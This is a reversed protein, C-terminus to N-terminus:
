APRRSGYPMTSILTRRSLIKVKISHNSKVEAEKFCSPFSVMLVVSSRAVVEAPNISCSVVYM